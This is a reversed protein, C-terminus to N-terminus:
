APRVVFSLRLRSSLFAFLDNLFSAVLQCPSLVSPSLAELHQSCCSSIVGWPLGLVFLDDLVGM